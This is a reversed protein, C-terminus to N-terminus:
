MRNQIFHGQALIAAFPSPSFFFTSSFTRTRALTLRFFSPPPLPFPHAHLCTDISKLPGSGFVADGLASMLVGACVHSDARPPCALVTGETLFTIEFQGFPHALLTVKKPAELGAHQCLRCRVLIKKKAIFPVLHTSFIAVKRFSHRTVPDCSM